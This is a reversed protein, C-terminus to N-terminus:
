IVLQAELSYDSHLFRVASALMGQGARNRHLTQNKEWEQVIINLSAMSTINLFSPTYRERYTYIHICVCVVSLDLATLHSLTQTQLGCFWFGRRVDHM